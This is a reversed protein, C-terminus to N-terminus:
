YDHFAARLTARIEASRTAEILHFACTDSHKVTVRRGAEYAEPSVVVEGDGWKTWSVHRLRDLAEDALSAAQEPTIEPCLLLFSAPLDAWAFPSANRPERKQLSLSALEGSRKYWIVSMDLNGPRYRCRSVHPHKPVGGCSDPNDDLAALVQSTKLRAILAQVPPPREILPRKAFLPAMIVPAQAFLPALSVGAFIGFLIAGTLAISPWLRLPREVFWFVFLGFCLASVLAYFAVALVFGFPEAQYTLLHDQGIFRVAGVKLAVFVRFGEIISLAPLYVLGMARLFKRFTEPVRM